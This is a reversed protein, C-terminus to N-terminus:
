SVARIGVLVEIKGEMWNPPLSDEDKLTGQWTKQVLGKNIAKKGYRRESTLQCDIKLRDNIARVWRARIEAVTERPANPNEAGGIVRQCRIKWILQASETMLIRYLRADGVKPKGKRSKFPAIPSSLIAGLSPRPWKKNKNKWLGEALTWIQKQGPAQCESMIHEMTEIQGCEKCDQRARLEDKFSPRDWNTGVMYADHMIMWLFNRIKKDIDKHRLGKWIREKTPTEGFFVEINDVARIMTDETRRRPEYKSMTIERIGQYALKQTMINLKAGSVCM